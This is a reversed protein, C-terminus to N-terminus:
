RCITKAAAKKRARRHRARSGRARGAPGRAQAKRARRRTARRADSCAASAPREPRAAAPAAPAPRPPEPHPHEPQAHPEEPAPRPPAPESPPAAPAAPAPPQLEAVPPQQAPAQPGLANDPGPVAAPDGAFDARCASAGNLRLDARGPNEYGPDSVVRNQGMTFAAAVEEDIGGNHFNDRAGAKLCNGSLANDRPPPNGQPWWAEVNFRNRSNSIVNGEIRNGTSTMGGDGSVTIGEGNSDMVNGRILNDDADPYLQIAYDANDYFWNGEIRSHASAEVYIGHDHGAAPLIGCHHIRNNEIVAYDARGYQGHSDGLLFCIVTNENQVDNDRFTVHDANVNPSPSKTGSNGNLYLGEIVVYPASQAIWFAGKVTAKEGPYSRLTLPAGDRGGRRMTLDEPYTGARLCGTQGAALSNALQQATRFPAGETGAASDSGAPSAYRDCGSAFADSSYSCFAAILVCATFL